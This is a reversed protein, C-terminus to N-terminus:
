RAVVIDPCAVSEGSDAAHWAAAALARYANLHVISGADLSESGRVQPDGDVIRAAQDGCTWWEGDRTPPDYSRVLDRMDIGLHTPREEPAALVVDRASSVGTLVHLCPIGAAIAGRVDTALQDGVAIPSLAGARQIALEFIAPEPKGASIPRVGTASVVAAVVSGNGLAFGREVPLRIDLNTAIHEAGRQIAIAAESLESWTVEPSLGQVVAAPDDDASSVVQLSTQALAERVGAAGLALVRSGAGLRSEALAAGAIAASITDDPTAQVGLGNLKQAIQAPTRLSNNTLFYTRMGMERAEALSEKVGDIASDGHYTCGDLDLVAVDFQRALETM